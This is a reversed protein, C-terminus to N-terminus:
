QPMPEDFNAAPVLRLLNEPTARPDLLAEGVFAVLDELEATTLHLPGLLPSLFAEPAFPIEERARSVNLGEYEEVPLIDM